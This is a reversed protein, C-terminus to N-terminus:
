ACVTATNVNRAVEAATGFMRVGGKELWLAKDAVQLYSPHNTVLILTSAGTHGRLGELFAAARETPMNDLAEDLLLVPVPRMIARALNLGRWFTESYQRVKFDGVRTDLGEPLAEIDALIGAKACSSRLDGESALPNTLRLNQAITGYFFQPTQPAYGFARRLAIPDMQRLTASDITIRGAQPQYLGMLLKLLTSKGAGDHGTIVLTEGAEVVFSLGLLAPHADPSYRTSVHGFEIRGQINRNLTLLAESRQELELNMLRDVQQVSKVIREVQLMVVFGSRLPALTRWVLFMAAVLAGMTMTGTLVGTVGVAMTAVGAGMVLANTLTSIQAALQASRYNSAVSEASAARYRELWAKAAGSHKIARMKTLVEMVIDQRTSGAQAGAATAGKVLPLYALAMVGFLAMASLPVFAIRGGLVVMALILLLTFPIELLAVLGQGSFFDRVSDFDRVRATQSGISASETFPPPLYLIRRFVENGVINGLRAGVFGLLGSRILRLGFDSLVFVLAGIIIYTLIAKDKMYPLQDYVTMVFLPMILALVSLLFSIFLGQRFPKGFRALVKRFWGDQKRHLGIGGDAPLTFFFATGARPTAEIECYSEHRGEYALLRGSHGKVLVVPGGDEGIYLCPLSRADIRDLSVAMSRSGFKLNSLVNLMDSLSLVDLAHPLAEALHFHSGRWGLADLLPILCAAFPGRGSICSQISVQSM